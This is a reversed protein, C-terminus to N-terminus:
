EFRQKRKCRQSLMRLVPTILAFLLALAVLACAVWVLNRLVMTSTSVHPLEEMTFGMVAGFLLVATAVLDMTSAINSYFPKVYRHLILSGQLLVFILGLQFPSTSAFVSVAISLLIRRVFWVLEFWFVKQRYSEYLFGYKAELNPDGALIRRRNRFMIAGFFAPIGITYLVFFFIASIYLSKYASDDFSCPIWQFNAMYGKSCPKLIELIGNSLEFYSASLLFLISFQVRSWLDGASWPKRRQQPLVQEDAPLAETNLLGQNEDDSPPPADVNRRNKSGLSSCFRKLRWIPDLRILLASIV